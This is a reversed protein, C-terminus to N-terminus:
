DTVTPTDPVPETVTLAIDMLPVPKIIEPGLNGNVSLM